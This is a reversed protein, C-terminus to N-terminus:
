ARPRGAADWCNWCVDPQEFPMRHMDDSEVCRECIPCYTMAPEQSPAIANVIGRLTPHVTENRM